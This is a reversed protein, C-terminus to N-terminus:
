TVRINIVSRNGSENEIIDAQINFVSSINEATIVDEPRDCAVIKGNHLLAITDAYAAALNLDHLIVFVTM